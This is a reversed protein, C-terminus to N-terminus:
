LHLPSTSEESALSFLSTFRSLFFPAFLSFLFSGAVRHPLPPRVALTPEQHWCGWPRRTVSSRHARGGSPASNGWLWAHGSRGRIAPSGAGGPCPRLGLQFSAGGSQSLSRKWIRGDWSPPNGHPTRRRPSQRPYTGPHSTKNISKICCPGM